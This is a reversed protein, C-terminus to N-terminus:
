ADTQGDTQACEAEEDLSTFPAGIARGRGGQREKGRERGGEGANTGETEGEGSEGDRQGEGKETQRDAEGGGSTLAATIGTVTNAVKRHYWARRCRMGGTPACDERM